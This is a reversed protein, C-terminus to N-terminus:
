CPASGYIFAQLILFLEGENEGFPFWKVWNLMGGFSLFKLAGFPKISSSDNGYFESGVAVVGDFGSISLKQLSPLQGLPPLSCCYKCASLRLNAINSFSHHGVWDPFSKGSYHWIELIELNTHPQLSDLVSKKSESITTVAANWGLVLKKLHRKDKMSANSADRPSAVNQLESIELSGRLNALKGLKSQQFLSRSVLACFYEEGVEGMTKNNSQQLFGEAMWLLIVQEKRFTCDKPFISCYAFCHKLPPPLYKYSLRLAPLINTEDVPLDWLESRLIRDWEEIDLKSRLLAGITKIALPLGKCKEVIQRGLEQLRLHLVSNGDHFAHKTFLSWSDAESLEKLQHSASARMASAVDNDRTTVIVKSGPAGSEFPNSLLEWDAYKKNWVDDLVVLFKKGALKERLKVQLWNLDKNDCPASPTVADLISKTIKFLDFEESVCVWAEVDFHERVREDNYVLQALTTKGIGGMGVVAIVSIKKGNTDDSLLLDIIAEKNEDRGCIGSEEVLSTTPLKESQKGGVGEKLGMLDKSASTQFEADLKCRLAETAIEDMIQEADYVADKMKDLWAKVPAMTVEKEEADELVASVSLLTIELKELLGGDLKAGRFFDIVERSAIRDFLVQLFASLFSGGVLAEAM